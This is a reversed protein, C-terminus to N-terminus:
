TRRTKWIEQLSRYGLIIIGEEKVVERAEPSILFDFDTQRVSWSPMLARLEATDLGPHVAWESLGPLLERLMQVYRATKGTYSSLCLLWDCRLFNSFDYLGAV